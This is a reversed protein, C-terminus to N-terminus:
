ALADFTELARDRRDTGNASRAATELAARIRWADAALLGIAGIVPVPGSTAAHLMQEADAEVRHWWSAEARWLDDEDDVYRLERRLDPPPQGVVEALRGASGDLRDLLTPGLVHAARVAHRGALAGDRPLRERLVLLAVASRAWGAAAPVGGAVREAWALRLGLSVDRPTAGGPDAWPSTALVQRLEDLSRTAALRVWVTQLTGLRYAPETPLGALRRLHEDVNAVEFGGALLRVVQAGDHPLWGALVRLHWLLTEAVGREAEALDQGAHVDHGYPTRALTEVAEGLDVSAALARSDAAGVRRRALARARVTGAVWSASM